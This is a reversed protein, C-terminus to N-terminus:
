PWLSTAAKSKQQYFFTIFYNLEGPHVRKFPATFLYPSTNFEPSFDFTLPM